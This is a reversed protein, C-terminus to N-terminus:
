SLCPRRPDVTRVATRSFIKTCGAVFWFTQLGECFLTISGVQLDV